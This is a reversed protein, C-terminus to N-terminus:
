KEGRVFKEIATESFMFKRESIHHAQLLEEQRWRAITSVHVNFRKAVEQPSYYNENKISIM